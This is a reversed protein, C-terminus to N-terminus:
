TNAALQRRTPSEGEDLRRQLSRGRISGGLYQRLDALSVWDRRWSREGLADLDQRVANALADVTKQSKDFATDREVRDAIMGAVVENSIQVDREDFVRVNWGANLVTEITSAIRDRSLTPPVYPEDKPWTLGWWPGAEVLTLKQSRSHSIGFYGASFSATCEIGTWRARADFTVISNRQNIGIGCEAEIATEGKAEFKFVYGAEARAGLAGTIKGKLTPLTFGPAGDPSDRKAGAEVKLEGSLSAYIQLKFSAAKVGIGIEFTLNFLTLAINFDIYQFVRHDTHEKWYWEVAMAGQMLQLNWDVYWGVQPAYDKVMKVIDRMTDAFKLVSGVIKLLDLQVNGGDRTLKITDAWKQESENPKFDPGPHSAYRYTDLTLSSPSWYADEVEVKKTIRGTQRLARIEGRGNAEYKSGHKLGALPPLAFEFKFQRPNYVEVEVSTPGPQITHKTRETFARWFLPNLINIINIDGLYEADFGYTTYRGSAGSQKAEGNARGPTRVALSPPMSGLWDDRWHVKVLDKTTGKNPVVQISSGRRHLDRGNSTHHKCEIYWDKVKPETSVPEQRAPEREEQAPTSDGGGGGPADRVEWHPAPMDLAVLRLQGSALRRALLELLEYDSLPGCPALPDAMAVARLVERNGPSDLFHHLYHTLLVEDAFPLEDPADDDLVSRLELLEGFPGQIETRL